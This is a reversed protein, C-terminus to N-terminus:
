YEGFEVHGTEKAHQRAEKEGKLGTKCVQCRLDFTATNTYAKKVRLKDALKKAAQLVADDDGERERPVMTQHFDDPVDLMPAITAADYHIGSYVLVCRNGSDSEAPPAFRDIRGTEVDVSAVETNYHKALVALEIAGGWTNPKLITSIYEERPRGLIAENWTDMDKRIEEAVIKRIQPAKSMDQEFILAISSFLCSNDDPVIRHVLYGGETPVYDPGSEQPAAPAPTLVVPESLQSRTLGTMPAAPSANSVTNAAPAATRAAGPKQTVILQEGTKLGLSELPLEPILTLSHPPYGAKLEQQSPPIETVAFIEQQLDLVTFSDLDVQLTTVGKPHRLRIPAM